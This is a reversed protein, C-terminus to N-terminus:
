RGRRRLAPKALQHKLKLQAAAPAPNCTDAGGPESSM